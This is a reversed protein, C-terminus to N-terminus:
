MNLKTLSEDIYMPRCGTPLTRGTCVGRKACEVEKVENCVHISMTIRCDTVRKWLKQWAEGAEQM